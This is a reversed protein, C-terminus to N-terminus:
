NTALFFANKLAQSEKEKRNKQDAFALNIKNSIEAAQPWLYYLSICLKAM